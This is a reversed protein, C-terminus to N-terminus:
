ESREPGDRLAWGIRTRKCRRVQDRRQPALPQESELAARSSIMSSGDAANTVGGTRVVVEPDVLSDTRM